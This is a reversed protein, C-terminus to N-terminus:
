GHRGRTHLLRPPPANKVAEAFSVGHRRKYLHYYVSDTNCFAEGHPGRARISESFIKAGCWPAACYEPSGPAPILGRIAQDAYWRWDHEANKLRKALLKLYQRCSGCLHRNGEFVYRMEPSFTAKCWPMICSVPEPPPPVWGKAPIQELAIQMSELSHKQQYEWVAEYCNRCVAKQGIWRRHTVDRVPRLTVDCGKRSCPERKPKPLHKTPEIKSFFVAM